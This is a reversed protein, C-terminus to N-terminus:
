LVETVDRNGFDANISAGGDLREFRWRAYAERTFVQPKDNPHLLVITDAILALREMQSTVVIASGWQRCHEITQMLNLILREDLNAEPEDLVILKPRGYLARALGLRRIEGGAFATSESSVLTEYGDPLHEVVDHIQALRAAEVIARPDPERLSSINEALTAGDLLAADQQLYGLLQQREIHTFRTIDLGGFRITGMTPSGVGSMLKVLTSKGSGSPGMICAIEGPAVTIDLKRFLPRSWANHTHTVQDVHLVPEADLDRIATVSERIAGIRRAVRSYARRALVLQRWNSMARRVGSTGLRGLVAAAIIGGTTLGDFIALWVGVGYCAVRQIAEAFRMTEAMTNGTMRSVLTEGRRNAMARHWREALQDGLNLSAVTELNQDAAQVVSDGKIRAKRAAARMPRTLMENAIGLALMTLMGALVLLGLMPHILYVMLLFAPAWMADLWTTLGGGSVFDSVESLDDIAKTPSRMRRRNLSAAFLHRGFHQEIWSGWHVLMWRRTLEALSAMLVAFVAIVTLLILTDTSRSAIVRDLLQFIYLPIALKLLNVFATLGFVALLGPRSRRWANRMRGGGRRSRKATSPAGQVLRVTTAVLRQYWSPRTNTTM